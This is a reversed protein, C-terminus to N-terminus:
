QVEGFFKGHSIDDINNYPNAGMHSHEEAARREGKAKEMNYGARYDFKDMKSTGVPNTFVFGFLSHEKIKESSGCKPCAVDPYIGTEDYVAIEEYKTQCCTCLFEYLAM